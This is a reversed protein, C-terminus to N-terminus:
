APSWGVTQRLPLSFLVKLTLCTHIASKSFTKPHGRKGTKTAHWAMTPDFWISLSGRRHLAANYDPWNTTRDRPSSAELM